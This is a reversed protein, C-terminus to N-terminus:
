LNMIVCHVRKQILFHAFSVDSNLSTAASVREDPDIALLSELLPLSSTPFDKFTEKTCRKYPKRPKFLTTNPLRYKNCYERSARCLCAMKLQTLTTYVPKPRKWVIKLHKLGTKITKFKNM